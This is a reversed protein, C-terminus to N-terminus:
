GPPRGAPDASPDPAPPGLQLAARAADVVASRDALLSAFVPGRDRAARIGAVAGGMRHLREAMRVTVYGCAPAGLAVLLGYPAGFELGILVGLAAYAVAFLVFCGVLKVTARMGQNDPRRSVYKVLQYPVVHVVAGAAAFPLAILVKAVAAAFPWRLSGSRYAAAVQADHLGARDLDQQYRAHAHRLPALAAAGGTSSEVRALREAVRQRDALDVDGPLDTESRTVIEAVAALRDADSWSAYDPGVDRLRRALDDTLARVAHHDDHGPAPLWPDVPEPRGVKVLARSRFRQKDDYVLAVAATEVGVVGDAAAGLAIRAAGTRLPQLTPEDHSIGEPFMAVMGHGALLRRARSFTDSNREMVAGDRARYVPVVGGLKLFPWLIPIRFLTSKGLLRPYRRLTAMLLLGDVLGNRHNVVLVMPRDSELREGGEVEVQRFFVHILLRALGSM